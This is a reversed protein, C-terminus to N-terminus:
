GVAGWFTFANTTTNSAPTISAPLSTQGTGNAAFRLTSTTLGFNATSLSGISRALQPPTTANAVVAIWYFGAPATYSGTFNALLIGLSTLGTDIAGAATVLRRTGSSDYVGIYNQNATVGSAAGAISIAVKSLTTAYRLEVQFLHVTGNVVSSGNICSTNDYTWAAYGHDSALYDSTPLSIGNVQFLDTNLYSVHNYTNSGSNPWANAIQPAVAGNDQINATTSSQFTAGSVVPAIVGSTIKLGINMSETYPNLLVTNHAATDLWIGNGSGSEIDAHIVTTTHSNAIYVGSSASNDGQPILRCDQITNSHASGNISIGTAAGGGYNIRCNRITNYHCTSASATMGVVPAVGSGGGGDILIREFTSSNTQSFNIATGFHSANSQSIRIDRIFLRINGTAQIATGVVSGDYLIQSGWGNGVITTGSVSAVLTSTIKYSGSPFFLTSGNTSLAALAAQIAATDDNTGDGVAGYDQPTVYGVLFM